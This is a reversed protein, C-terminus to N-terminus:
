AAGVRALRGRNYRQVTLCPGNAAFAYVAMVVTLPWPNWLPFLVIPAPVAWHVYEARRTEVAFAELAGATRGPLRRKTAGGFVAGAEPLRDKWRRIGIREYARGGREWARLRTLWTDRALWRRPVRSAGWGAVTGWVAWVVIDAVLATIV